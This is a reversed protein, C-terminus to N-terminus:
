RAQPPPSAILKPPWVAHAAVGAQQEKRAQLMARLTVFAVFFGPLIMTAKQRIGLGVNYYGISLMLLVGVSSLLAFRIYPVTKALTTVLRHHYILACIMFLFLLNEFSVILGLAGGADFFFPRFLLSLVRVPYVANVATRGADESQVFADRGTGSLMDSVTNPDTLNLNFTTRLTAVAFIVGIVSTAFFIVRIAPSTQRDRVVTAALAALAVMAIHPRILMLVTIALVMATLRRRINMASWISLVTAFFFLSDKGLASSWYHLSPLFLLLYIYWSPEVGLDSYIEELIRMLIAIGFFGIAQFILFYDLYSGGAVYKISQVVYIIFQTNLGFGNQYYGLFDYYYL